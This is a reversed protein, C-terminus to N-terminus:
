HASGSGSGDHKWAPRCVLAKGNDRPVECTGKLEHDRRGKFACADGQKAKACADFAAQPPPRRPPPPPAPDGAAVALPMAFVLSLVLRTM